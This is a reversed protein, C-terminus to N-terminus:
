YPMPHARYAAAIEEMVEASLTMDASGLATELQEMTTAGFIVSAMFPRTFCWALAMQCPDLGHRAAIDLYAGVAPELRPTIRGTLTENLTRRSGAPMADGQYKGSLIGAALPSFALLGVDENHSVEALDLDFNRCLLSYENQISVVRPLGEAEAIDLFQQTGWASENSLGLHRIKGEEILAAATELVDRIHARTEERNQSTPDYAWYQRFHYSGRNPWHLQYLDVYDTKLRQLSGELARRMADGSIEEGGRKGKAGKGSVKTALIMRERAGGRAFWEGIVAETDGQTEASVPTAPYMEATDVFNIGAELARDIQAHGEETTNQTGWTMSGLCLLSVELDTRGLRRYQM